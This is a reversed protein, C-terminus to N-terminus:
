YRHKELVEGVLKFVQKLHEKVEQAVPDSSSWIRPKVCMAFLKILEAALFAYNNM